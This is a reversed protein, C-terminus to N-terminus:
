RTSQLEIPPLSNEGEKIVAKLPSTAPYSYKGHLQDPGAIEEGGELRTQRWVVTLVYDGAPAGDHPLRTTPQFRGDPEVIAMTLPSRGADSQTSHFVVEAGAAPKGDVWVVGSVPYVPPGEEGGGCGEGLM